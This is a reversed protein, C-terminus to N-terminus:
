EGAQQLIQDRLAPSLRRGQAVMLDLYPRVAVILSQRKAELLIGVSGTVILNLKVAVSRAYREDILVRSAQSARALAIAEREGLDLAVPLAPDNPALHVTIWAIATLDPRAPFALLGFQYEDFVAQPIWIPSYIQQIVDLLGIESLTILPTTNSVVPSPSPM